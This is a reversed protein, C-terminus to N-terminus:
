IGCEDSIFELVVLKMWNKEMAAFDDEDDPALVLLFHQPRHLAQVVLKAVDVAAVLVMTDVVIDNTHGQVVM